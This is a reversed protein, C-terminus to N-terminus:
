LFSTALIFSNCDRGEGLRGTILDLGDISANGM